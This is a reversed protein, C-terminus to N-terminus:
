IEKTFLLSRDKFGHAEYFRHADQRHFASDLEVRHCGKEAAIQLVKELLEGGIGKRRMSADVVLEDVNALYGQQWLSNKVSLSCFGVIEGEVAACLYEQSDNDLGRLFAERMRGRDLERDPWLQELLGLVTEFDEQTCSRIEVM